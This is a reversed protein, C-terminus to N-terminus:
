SRRAYTAARWLREMPGTVFCSLWANASLVLAIWVTIAIAAIRADGLSGFWGLGWWSALATCIISEALYVTLAMRGAREVPLAIWRSLRPAWEVAACAYAPPLAIASLPLFFTHMALAIPTDSGFIWFGAVCLLSCPLGVLLGLKVIRRRRASAEPVSDFLRLKLAYMGLVMMMITTWGFGFPASAVCLAWLAARFALADVFPGDRYAAIEADIWISSNFVEQGSKFIADIGRLPTGTADTQDSEVIEASPQPHFIDASLVVQAVAGLLSLAVMVTAIIVFTRRLARASWGSIALMVTGAVAYIVLIDGYWVVIAHVFGIAALAGMRRLGTPWKSKGAEVARRVQLAIGFGFLLSFLSISKFTFLAEVVSWVIEDLTTTEVGPLLDQASLAQGFPWFFFRVNVMLIGLLAFGRALDVGEIRQATPLPALRAEVM